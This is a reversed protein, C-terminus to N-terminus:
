RASIGRGAVCRFPASSFTSGPPFSRVVFTTLADGAPVVFSLADVLDSPGITGMVPSTGSAVTGTATPSAWNNSLDGGISEDWLVTGTAGQAGLMGLLAVVFLGIRM